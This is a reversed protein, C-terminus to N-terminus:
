KQHEAVLLRSSQIVKYRVPILDCIVCAVVVEQPKLRDADILVDSAISQALIWPSHVALSLGLYMESVIKEFEEFLGIALNDLAAKQDHPSLTDFDLPLLNTEINQLTNKLKEIINAKYRGKQSGILTSRNDEPKKSKGKLDSAATEAALRWKNELLEVAGRLTLCNRLMMCESNLRRLESDMREVQYKFKLESIEWQKKERELELELEFEKVKVHEDAQETLFEWDIQGPAKSAQRFLKGFFSSATVPSDTVQTRRTTYICKKPALCLPLSVRRSFIRLGLM